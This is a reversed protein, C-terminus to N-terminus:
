MATPCSVHIMVSHLFIMCMHYSCNESVLSLLNIWKIVRDVKAGRLVHDKNDTQLIRITVWQEKDGGVPTNPQQSAEPDHVKVVMSLPINLAESQLSLTQTLPLYSLARCSSLVSICKIQDVTLSNSVKAGEQKYWNFSYIYPLEPNM